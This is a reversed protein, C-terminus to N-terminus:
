LMILGLRAGLTVAETRSSANLKTFISSVHFKVTHESIGLRSAITKNGLGLALMGLVEIERPTLAQIPFTPMVPVTPENRSLWDEIWDPPLVVLGTAATLIAAVIEDTSANRPLIAQAGQKLAHIVRDNDEYDTLVVVVPRVLGTDLAALTEWLPEEEDHTWEWLLVDPQVEQVRQMLSISHSVSSVVSLSPHTQIMSELGAQMIPNETQVLVSLVTAESGDQQTLMM